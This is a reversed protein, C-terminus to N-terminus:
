LTDSGRSFYAPDDINYTFDDEDPEEPEETIKDFCWECLGTIRIERLGMESYIHGKGLAPGELEGLWIICQKCEICTFNYGPSYSANLRVYRFIIQKREPSADPFEGQLAEMREKNM